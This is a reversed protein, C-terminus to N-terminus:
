RNGKKQKAEYEHDVESDSHSLDPLQSSKYVRDVPSGRVVYNRFESVAGCLRCVGKSIPGGPSEIIWYHRCEADAASGNDKADPKRRM